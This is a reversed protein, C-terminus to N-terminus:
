QEREQNSIHWLLIGLVVIAVLCHEMVMYAFLALRGHRQVFYEMFGAGGMLALIATWCGPYWKRMGGAKVARVSIVTLSATLGVAALLQVMSVFGNSRLYLSDYRTSDLIVQSACYVLLFLLTLNGPKRPRSSFFLMCLVVFLCGAAASQFLFTAFRYEPIGSASNMVPYAWPLDTLEAVIQGRDGTSFFHGLRGLAIAGSGAVSMCDLLVSKKGGPFLLATVACGLFGGALAFASARPTVLAQLVSDFSDPRCNWYLLRGLLLSLVLAAAGAGAAAGTSIGRQSCCFLFFCFGSLIALGLVLAYRYLVANNLFIAIQNM